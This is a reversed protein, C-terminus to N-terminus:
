GGGKKGRVVKITAFVEPFPCGQRNSEENRFESTKKPSLFGKGALLNYRYVTKTNPFIRTVGLIPVLM